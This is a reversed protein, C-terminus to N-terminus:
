GAVEDKTVGEGYIFELLPSIWLHQPSVFAKNVRRLLHVGCQEYSWFVLESCFWRDEDQINQNILFGGLALFDYGDGIHKKAQEVIKKGLEDTVLPCHMVSFKEREKDWIDRWQVGQADASIVKPWQDVIMSHSWPSWTRGKIADAIFDRGTTFVIDGPLPSYTQIM